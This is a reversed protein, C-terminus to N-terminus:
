GAEPASHATIWAALALAQARDLNVSEVSYGDGLISVGGDPLADAEMTRWLDDTIALHNEDGRLARSKKRRKPPPERQDVLVFNPESVRPRDM